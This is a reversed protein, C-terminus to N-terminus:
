FKVVRGIPREYVQPSVLELEERLKVRNYGNGQYYIMIEEIAEEKTKAMSFCTLTDCGGSLVNVKIQNWVYLNM